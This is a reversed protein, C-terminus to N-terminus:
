NSKFYDIVESLDHIRHVGPPDKEIKNWPSDLLLVIKGHDAIDIANRRRDEVIADYGDLFVAKSYGRYNIVLEYPIKKCFKHVLNYTDQAADMPRNTIIKVPCGMVAYAYECLEPVGITIPIEPWRRYCTRILEWIEKRTLPLHETLDFTTQDNQSWVIGTEACLVEEFLKMLNVLVGDLDFAIYMPKKM